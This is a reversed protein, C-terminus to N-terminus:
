KVERIAKTQYSWKGKVYNFPSPKLSTRLVDVRRVPITLGCCKEACRKDKSIRVWINKPDDGTEPELVEAYSFYRELKGGRKKEMFQVLVAEGTLRKSPENAIKRQIFQAAVADGAERPSIFYTKKKLRNYDRFYATSINGATRQELESYISRLRIPNIKDGSLANKFEDALDAVTQISSPEQKPNKHNKRLPKQYVFIPEYKIRSETGDENKIYCVHSSKGKARKKTITKFGEEDNIGEVYAHMDTTDVRNAGPMNKLSMKLVEIKQM